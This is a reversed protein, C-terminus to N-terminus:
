GFRTGIELQERVTRELAQAFGDRADRPADPPM